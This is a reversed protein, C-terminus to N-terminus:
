KLASETHLLNTIFQYTCIIGCRFGTALNSQSTTLLKILLNSSNDSMLIVCLLTAVRKLHITSYKAVINNSIQSQTQCYCFKLFRGANPLTLVLFRTTCSKGSVTYIEFRWIIEAFCKGTLPSQHYGVYREYLYWKYNGSNLLIPRRM